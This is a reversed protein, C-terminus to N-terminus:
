CDKSRRRLTMKLAYAEMGYAVGLSYAKAKNRKVPDLKKLYNDAKKDASVGNPFRAKQETM